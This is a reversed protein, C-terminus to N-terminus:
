TLKELLVGFVSLNQSFICKKIRNKMRIACKKPFDFTMQYGEFLPAGSGNEAVKETRPHV